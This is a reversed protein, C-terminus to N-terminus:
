IWINKDIVKYCVYISYFSTNNKSEVLEGDKFKDYHLKTSPYIFYIDKGEMIEKFYKTFLNMSNM